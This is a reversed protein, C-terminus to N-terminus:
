SIPSMRVVPLPSGLKSLEASRYGGGVWGRGGNQTTQEKQPHDGQPLLCLGIPTICDLAAQISPNRVNGETYAQSFTLRLGVSGPLEQLVVSLVVGRGQLKIPKEEFGIKFQGLDTM